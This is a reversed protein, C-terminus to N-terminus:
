VLRPSGSAIMGRASPIAHRTAVRRAFRQQLVMEVFCLGLLAWLLPRWFEIGYRRRTISRKYEAGIRVLAVGHAKALDAIEKDTLKQLDSERRSANVVYHLRGRRRAAHAHLPRAAADQAFEVVGREGEKVIPLEIPRATPSSRADSEQRRRAAPLFAVLPKGVDLNRPPFVTSALYVRAAAHAAPLVPADAPQELGCRVARRLRHRPRRRVAERRSVSRRQRAARPDVPETAGAAEGAGAHPVVDQDRRRRPQRQASRQLARARSERLAALRHRRVARRGELRRRARRARAAALGKGDKFLAGNYWTADIRNGPFVLLGGGNKVFDELARLQDDNLKRVNALIVVAQESLAKRTRPRGAQHGRDHHSRRARRPRRQLAPARDRRLGDRGEAARREPRRQRAAGAGQRARPHQRSLSNDAKLADAEAFVEISTRARRTSPTRSSCRAKRARRRAQDAVVSKEKGDAKFYVRLDPYHADGFNRLNARIQIKQGVGVM